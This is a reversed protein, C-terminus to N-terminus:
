RESGREPLDELESERSMGRNSGSDSGREGKSGSGREQPTQSPKRWQQGQQGQNRQGENQGQQPGQNQQGQNKNQNM